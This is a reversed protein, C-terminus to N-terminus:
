VRGPKGATWRLLDDRSRTNVVDGATVWARRAQSVGWIIQDLETTKHADSDISVV